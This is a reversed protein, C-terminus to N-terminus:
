VRLFSGVDTDAIASHKLKPQMPSFDLKSLSYIVKEENEM